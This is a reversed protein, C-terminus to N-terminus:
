NKKTETCSVIPIKYKQFTYVKVFSAISDNGLKSHILFDQDLNRFKQKLEKINSRNEQRINKKNQM